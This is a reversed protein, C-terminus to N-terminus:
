ASSVSITPVTMEVDKAEDEELDGRGSIGSLNEFNPFWLSGVIESKLPSASRIGIKCVM